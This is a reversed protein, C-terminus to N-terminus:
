DTEEGGTSPGDGEEKVTSDLRRGGCNGERLGLSRRLTSRPPAQRRARADRNLLAARGSSGLVVRSNYTVM